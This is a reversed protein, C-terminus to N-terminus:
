FSIGGRLLMVGAVPKMTTKGESSRPKGGDRQSESKSRGQHKENEM